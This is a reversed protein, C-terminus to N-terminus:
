PSVDSTLRTVNSVAGYPLLVAARHASAITVGGSGVTVSQDTDNVVWLVKGPTADPDVSLVRTAGPSGTVQLVTPANWYWRAPSQNAPSPFHYKVLPSPEISWFRALVYWLGDAACKLGIAMYDTVEDLGVVLPSDSNVITGSVGPDLTLSGTPTGPVAMDLFWLSQGIRPSTPLHITNGLKFSDLTYITDDKTTLTAGTNGLSVVNPVSGGAVTAVTRSNAIDDDVSVGAGALQLKTRLPTISGDPKQIVLAFFADLPTPETNM